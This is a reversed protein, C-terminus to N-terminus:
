RRRSSAPKKHPQKMATARLEDYRAVYEDVNFKAIAQGVLELPLDDITKFRVCSGGIDLRKGTKRYATEFWARTAKDGYVAMLYVVMYNKQSALGALFLPKGNYTDAYRSLPVSYMVGGWGMSEDFGSPLNALITRRVAEIAARRGPPLSALYEDVTKASSSAM